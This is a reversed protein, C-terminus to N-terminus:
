ANNLNQNPLNQQNQQNIQNLQNIQNDRNLFEMRIENELKSTQDENLHYIENFWEDDLIEEISPRDNENFAVMKIYLNKFMYSLNIPIITEVHNWYENFHRARIYRYSPDENSSNTFGFAGTVLAFLIVGLSFIDVKFGDYARHERMQPSEYHEGVDFFDNLGNVNNNTALLFDIIIPNYNQNFLIHIPNLNRHCLGVNHLAKVAKIIKSFIFKAHLERFGGLELYDMLSRGQIYELILYYRNNQVNGGFNIAGNGSDFLHILNPNNLDSVIKTMELERNFSQQDIFIKAVYQTNNNQNTVLYM